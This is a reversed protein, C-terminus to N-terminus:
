SSTLKCSKLRLGLLGDLWCSLDVGDMMGGQMVDDDDVNKVLLLVM